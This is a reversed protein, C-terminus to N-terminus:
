KQIIKKDKIAKMKVKRLDKIEEETLKDIEKVLNKM